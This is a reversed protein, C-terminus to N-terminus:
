GEAAYTKNTLAKKECSRNELGFQLTIREATKPFQVKWRIVNGDIVPAVQTVNLAESYRAYSIAWNSNFAIEGGIQYHPSSVDWNYYEDGAHFTYPLRFGWHFRCKGAPLVPPSFTIRIRGRTREPIWDKVEVPLTRKGSKAWPQIADEPVNQADCYVPFDAHSLLTAGINVVRADIAHDAGGDADVDIREDWFEFAYHERRSIVGGEVQLDASWRQRSRWARWLRGLWALVPGSVAITLVIGIITVILEM